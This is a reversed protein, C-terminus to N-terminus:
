VLPEAAPRGLSAIYKARQQQNFKELGEAQQRAWQEEIAAQQEAMAASSAAAAEEWAAFQAAQQEREVRQATAVFGAEELYKCDERLLQNKAMRVAVASPLAADDASLAEALQPFDGSVQARVTDGLAAWAERSRPFPTGPAIAAFKELAEITPIAPDFKDSTAM